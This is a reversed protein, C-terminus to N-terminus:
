KKWICSIDKAFSQKRFNIIVCVDDTVIKFSAITILDHAVQIFDSNKRLDRITWLHYTERYISRFHKRFNLSSKSSIVATLSLSPISGKWHQMLIAVTHWNTKRLCKRSSFRIPIMGGVSISGLCFVWDFCQLPQFIHWLIKVDFNLMSSISSFLDDQRINDITIVFNISFLNNQFQVNLPQFSQHLDSSSLLFYM